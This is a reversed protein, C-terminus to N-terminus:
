MGVGVGVRLIPNVYPSDYTDLLNFLITMGVFANNSIWQRYGGGLFLSSVWAREKEVENNANVSIFKDYNLEEFEAHLFLDNFFFLYYRAFVGAGFNNTSFKVGYYSEDYRNYTYIFRTGIDIDPTLRYGILPAVMLNTSYSSMGFGLGGGIYFRKQMKFEDKKQQAPQGFQGFSPFTFGILLILLLITSIKTIRM